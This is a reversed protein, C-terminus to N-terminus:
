KDQNKQQLLKSKQPAKNYIPSLDLVQKNHMAWLLSKHPCSDRLQRTWRVVNGIQKKNATELSITDINNQLEKRIKQQESSSRVLFICDFVCTSQLTCCILAYSIAGRILNM